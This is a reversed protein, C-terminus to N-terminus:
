EEVISIKIHTGLKVDVYNIGNKDFLTEIEDSSLKIAGYKEILQKLRPTPTHIIEYGEPISFIIVYSIPERLTFNNIKYTEYFIIRRISSTSSSVEYTIELKPLPIKENRGFLKDDIYLVGNKTYIEVVPQESIDTITLKKRTDIIFEIQFLRAKIYNDAVENTKDLLFENGPNIIGIYVKEPTTITLLTIEDYVKESTIVFEPIKLRYKGFLFGADLYPLLNESEILTIFSLNLHKKYNKRNLGIYGLLVLLLRAETINMYKFRIIFKKIIKNQFDERLALLNEEERLYKKNLFIHLTPPDCDFCYLEPKKIRNKLKENIAISIKFAKFM